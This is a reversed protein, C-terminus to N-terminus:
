YIPPAQKEFFLKERPGDVEAEVIEIWMYYTVPVLWTRLTSGRKEEISFKELDEPKSRCAYSRALKALDLAKDFSSCVAITTCGELDCENVVYVKQVTGVM